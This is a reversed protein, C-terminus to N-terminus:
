SPSAAARGRSGAVDSPFGCMLEALRRDSWLKGGCRAQQLGPQDRPWIHLKGGSGSSLQVRVPTKAEEPATKRRMRLFVACAAAPRRRAWANCRRVVAGGPLKCCGGDSPFGCTLEVLGCSSRLKGGCGVSFGCTLEVLGCSSRPKGGCRPQQLIERARWDPRELWLHLNGGVVAQCLPVSYSPFSGRLGLLARRVQLLGPSYPPFRCHPQGVPGGRGAASLWGQLAVGM